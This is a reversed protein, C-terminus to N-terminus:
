EGCYEDSRPCLLPEHVDLSYLLPYIFSLSSSRAEAKEDKFPTLIAGVKSHTSFSSVSCVSYAGLLARSSLNTLLTQPALVNEGGESWCSATISTM